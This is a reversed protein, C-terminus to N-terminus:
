AIQIKKAGAGVGTGAGAKSRSTSSSKCSSRSLSRIRCGKVTGAGVGTRAEEAMTEHCNIEFCLNGTYPHFNGSVIGRVTNEWSLIQAM